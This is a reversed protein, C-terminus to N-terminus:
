GKVKQSEEWFIRLNSHFFEIDSLLLRQSKTAFIIAITENFLKKFFYFQDILIPNHKSFKVAIVIATFNEFLKKCHLFIKFNFIQSDVKQFRESFNLPNAWFM